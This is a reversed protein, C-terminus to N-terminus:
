KNLFYKFKRKQEFNYKNILQRYLNKFKNEHNYKSLIVWVKKFDERWQNDRPVKLFDQINDLLDNGIEHEFFHFFNNPYKKEMKFSWNYREFLEELISFKDKKRFNQNYGPKSNSTACDMPNRIIMLFKIRKNKSIVSEVNIKKIVSMNRSGDKWIISRVNEKEAKSYREYFVESMNGKKFAHSVTIVGGKSPVHTENRNIDDVTQIFNKVKKDSYDLLFNTKNNTNILPYHNLITINPHLMCASSFLTSLSRVAVTLICISKVM